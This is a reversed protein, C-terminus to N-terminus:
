KKWDIGLDRCIKKALLDGIETHRPVSSRRDSVPNFWWSHCAGERLLYCGKSNLYRIFERRKM